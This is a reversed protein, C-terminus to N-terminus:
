MFGKMLTPIEHLDTTGDENGAKDAADLLKTWVNIADIAVGYPSSLFEDKLATM